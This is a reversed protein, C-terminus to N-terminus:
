FRSKYKLHVVGLFKGPLESDFGAKAKWKRPCTLREDLRSFPWAVTWIGIVWPEVHDESASNM